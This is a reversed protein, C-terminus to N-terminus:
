HVGVIPVSGDPCRLLSQAVRITDGGEHGVGGCASLVSVNHLAVLGKPLVARARWVTLACPRTGEAPRRHSCPETGHMPVHVPARIAIDNMPVAQIALCFGQQDLKFSIDVAVWRGVISPRLQKSDQKTGQKMLGDM